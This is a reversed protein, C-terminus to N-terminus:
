INLLDKKRGSNYADIIGIIWCFIILYFIFRYIPSNYATVARTAADSITVMDIPNGSSELTEMIESAQQLAKTLIVLISALVTFILVVGKKYQKLVIQGLGPFVLGSLFVGKLSNKM